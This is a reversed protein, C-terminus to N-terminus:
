NNKSTKDMTLYKQQDIFFNNNELKYFYKNALTSIRRHLLLLNYYDENYNNDLDFYNMLERRGITNDHKTLMYMTYNLCNLILVIEYKFLTVRM